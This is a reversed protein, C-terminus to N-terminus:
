PLTRSDRTPVRLPELNESRRDRRKPVDAAAWDGKAIQGALCRADSIDYETVSLTLKPTVGGSADPPSMSPLPVDAVM